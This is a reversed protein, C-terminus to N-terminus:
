LSVSMLWTDASLGANRRSCRPRVRVVDNVNMVQREGRDPRAVGRHGVAVGQVGMVGAHEAVQHVVRGEHHGGGRSTYYLWGDDSWAGGWGLASDRVVTTSSGGALELAVLDGPFGTMFALFVGDPSFFPTWVNEFDRIPTGTM